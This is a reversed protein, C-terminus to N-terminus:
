FRFSKNTNHYSGGLMEECKASDFSMLSFITIVFTNELREILHIWMTTLQIIDLLENFRQPKTIMRGGKIFGHRHLNYKLLLGYGDVASSSRYDTPLETPLLPGSRCSLSHVHAKHTGSWDHVELM